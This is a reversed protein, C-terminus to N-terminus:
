ASVLRLRLRPTNWPDDPNNIPADTFDKATLRRGLRRELCGICLFGRDMGAKKWVKPHVMYHEWREAVAHTLGALLQRDDSRGGSVRGKARMEPM